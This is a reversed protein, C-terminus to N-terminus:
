WGLDNVKTGGVSGKDEAFILPEVGNYETYFGIDDVDGTVERVFEGNIDGVTDGLLMRERGEIRLKRSAPTEREGVEVAAGGGNLCGGSPCAMIEIYHFHSPPVKSGDILSSNKKEVARKVGRGVLTQIGRFGTLYGFRLLCEGIGENLSFTKTALDGFLTITKLPTNTAVASSSPNKKVTRRAGATNTTKTTPTAYQSLPTDIWPLSSISKNDLAELVDFDFLARCAHVFVYSAHGGSHLATLGPPIKAHTLQQQEQEQQEQQQQQQQQQQWFWKELDEEECNRRHVEEVVGKILEMPTICLDILGGFEPRVAEIKKDHCMMVGVVFTGGEGSKSGSRLEKAGIMMPSKVMSIHNILQSSNPQLAFRHPPPRPPPSEKEAYCVFAPCAGSLIPLPPSPPTASKASVASTSVRSSSLSRIMHNKYSRVFEEGELVRGFRRSGDDTVISVDTNPIQFYDTLIRTLATLTSDISHRSGFYCSLDIVCTRSFLFVVNKKEATPSCWDSVTEWWPTKEKDDVLTSTTTVCGSCSLCDSLTVKVTKRSDSKPKSSQSSKSSISSKSSNSVVQPKLETRQEPQLKPQQPPQPLNPNEWTSLNTKTNYWYSKNSAPDHHPGTWDSVSASASATRPTIVSPVNQQDGSIQYSDDENDDKDDHLMIVAKKKRSKKTEQGDTTTAGKDDNAATVKNNTPTAFAPNICAASPSIFDSVDDLMVTSMSLDQMNM